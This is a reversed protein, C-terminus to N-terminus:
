ECLSTSPKMWGCFRSDRPPHALNYYRFATDGRSCRTEGGGSRQWCGDQYRAFDACFRGKTLPDLM